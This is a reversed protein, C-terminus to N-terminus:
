LPDSPGTAQLWMFAVLLGLLLFILVEHFKRNQTGAGILLMVVGSLRLANFPWRAVVGHVLLDEFAFLAPTLAALLCISTKKDFFHTELDIKEGLDLNPYLLITIIYFIMPSALFFLFYILNAAVVNRDFVNGWWLQVYALFTLATWLLHPWYVRVRGRDRLVTGWGVLLERIGLATIMAVLVMLYSIDSSDTLM